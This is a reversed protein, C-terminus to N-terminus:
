IFTIMCYKDRRKQSIESLMVDEPKMWMTAQTLIKKMKKRKEKMTLASYYRMTHTHWMKNIWEDISKKVKQGHLVTSSHVSTYSCRSSVRSETNKPIYGATFNHQIYPLETLKKSFSGYQKVCRHLPVSPLLYISPYISM